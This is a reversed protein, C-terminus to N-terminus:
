DLENEIEKPNVGGMIKASFRLAVGYQKFRRQTEVDLRIGYGGTGASM